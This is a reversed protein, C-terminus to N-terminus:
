TFVTMLSSICSTKVTQKTQTRVVHNGSLFFVDHRTHLLINGTGLARRHNKIRNSPWKQFAPRPQQLGAPNDKLLPKSEICRVGKGSSVASPLPSLM